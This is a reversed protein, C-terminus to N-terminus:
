VEDQMINKAKIAFEMERPHWTVGWDKQEWVQQEKWFKEVCQKIYRYFPGSKDNMSQMFKNLETKVHEIILTQIDDSVTDFKPTSEM